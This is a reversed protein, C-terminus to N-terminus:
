CWRLEVLTLDDHRRGGSFAEVADLVPHFLAMGNAGAAEMVETLRSLGFTEGRANKSELVGDTLLLLIDGHDLALTTEPYAAEPLIGLPPGGPLEVPEAKGTRRHYWVLPVHGGNAASVAGTTADLLLYQMTVFMGRRARTALGANVARLVDGPSCFKLATFRLDSILMAMFLAAPVGKGSVDGIALALWDDSRSPFDYLDGGVVSAPITKADVQFRNRPCTPFHSPLFSQQVVAAIELQQRERERELMGKHLRANEIAVAVQRCFTEFVELDEPGGIKPDAINMVEAVGILREQVLLPACLINRTVFGTTADVSRAVRPDRAADPVWEARRTQAVAGAIGQGLDLTIKEKLSQITGGKEGLAVEFELKKTQPNYLLIASAEAGTVAQAKELVLRLVEDLDLSSNIIASTEILGYLVRVRQQLRQIESELNM